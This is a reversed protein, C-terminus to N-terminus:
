VAKSVPWSAAPDEEGGPCVAIEREALRGGAGVSGKGSLQQSLINIFM